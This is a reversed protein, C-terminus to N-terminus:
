IFAALPSARSSVLLAPILYALPTRGPSNERHGEHIGGGGQGFRSVGKHQGPIVVVRRVNEVRHNSGLERWRHHV